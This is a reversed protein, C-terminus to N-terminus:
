SQNNQKKKERNARRKAKKFAKIQERDPKNYEITRWRYFMLVKDHKKWNKNYIIYLNKLVQLSVAVRGRGKQEAQLVRVPRPSNVQGRYFDSAIAVTSFKWDM